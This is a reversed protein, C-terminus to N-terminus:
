TILHIVLHGSCMVLHSVLDTVLNSLSKSLSGLAIVLNILSNSLSWVLHGAIYLTSQICSSYMVQICLTYCQTDSYWFITLMTIVIYLM